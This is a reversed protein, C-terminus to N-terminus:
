SRWIFPYLLVALGFLLLDIGALLLLDDEVNSDDLIRLANAGVKIVLLLIPLVLPMALISMLTSGNQNYAVISSVFTFCISVGISGLFVNVLFLKFDYIPNSIFFSMTGVLLFAVACLTLVNYIIKAIILAAPHILQYYYLYQQKSETSFSRFLANLAAFLFILWYLVNWAQINVSQYTKYVIFTASIVYLLIASLAHLNRFELKFEKVILHVITSLVM